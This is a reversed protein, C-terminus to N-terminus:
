RAHAAPPVYFRGTIETEEQEIEMIGDEGLSSIVLDLSDVM